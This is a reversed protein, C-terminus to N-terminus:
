FLLYIVIKLFSNVPCICRLDLMKLLYDKSMPGRITKGDIAIVEKLVLKSISKVWEIFCAEFQRIDIAFLVRNFNVRSPIGNPLGLFTYLFHDKEQAYLEM